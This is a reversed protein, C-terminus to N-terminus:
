KEFLNVHEEKVEVDEKTDFPVEDNKMMMLGNMNIIMLDNEMTSNMVMMM